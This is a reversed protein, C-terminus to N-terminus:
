ETWVAQPNGLMSRLYTVMSEDPAVTLSPQVRRTAPGDQVHLVLRSGGPQRYRNLSQQLPACAPRCPRTSASTCAPSRPATKAAPRPPRPRASCNKPM